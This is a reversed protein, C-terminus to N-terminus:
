ITIKRDRKLVDTLVSLASAAAINGPTENPFHRLSRRLASLGPRGFFELFRNEYSEVMAKVVTYHTWTAVDPTANVICQLSQWFHRTPVPNVLKSRSFNRLAISAFGAGLGTMRESHRQDSVWPGDKEERWWGLRAKGQNTKDDGSIGWLVPCLVHFKAMLIDVLSIGKWSFSETAFVQVAVIGVPDAAKPSVGAEDIFQAMVAKAFINLLYVFIAPFQPSETMAGQYPVENTNAIFTSIDIQPGQGDHRAEILIDLIRRVPARNAGKGETLQGVCKRIERRQEGLRQKWLSSQKAWALVNRRLDKLRRHILVMKQHTEEIARQPELDRGYHRQSFPLLPRTPPSRPEKALTIVKPQHRYHSEAERAERRLNAQAQEEAKAQLAQDAKLKWIAEQERRAAREAEERRRTLEREEAEKRRALQREEEEKRRALEREETERRIQERVRKEEECRRLIEQQKEHQYIQRALEASQLVRQHAEAASALALNHEREKEILSRDLEAHFRADAQLQLQLLDRVLAM